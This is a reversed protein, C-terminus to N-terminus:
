SVRMATMNSQAYITATGSTVKLAQLQLTGATTSNLLDVTVTIISGTASSTAFAIGATASTTMIDSSYATITAVNGNVIGLMTSGAPTTFAIKLGNADAGNVKLTFTAIWHESVGIALSLGTVSTLSTTANTYNAALSKAVIGLGLQGTTLTSGGTGGSTVPMPTTFDNKVLLSLSGDGNQYLAKDINM